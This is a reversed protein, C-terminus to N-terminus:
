RSHEHRAWGPGWKPLHRVGAPKYNFFCLMRSTLDVDLM